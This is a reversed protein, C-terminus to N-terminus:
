KTTERSACAPSYYPASAQLGVETEEPQSGARALHESATHGLALGERDCDQQEHRVAEYHHRPRHAHDSRMSLVARQRISVRAFQAALVRLPM